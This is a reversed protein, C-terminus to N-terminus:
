SVVPIQIVSRKKKELVKAHLEGMKLQYKLTEPVHRNEEGAHQQAVEGLRGNPWNVTLM